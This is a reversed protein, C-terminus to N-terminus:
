SLYLKSWISRLPGCNKLGWGCKREMFALSYMGHSGKRSLVNFSSHVLAEAIPSPKKKRELHLISLCCAHGCSIQLLLVSLFCFRRFNASPMSVLLYSANNKPASTPIDSCSIRHHFHIREVGSRFGISPWFKSSQHRTSM